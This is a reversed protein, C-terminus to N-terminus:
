LILQFLKSDEHQANVAILNDSLPANSAGLEQLRPVAQAFGPCRAALRSAINHLNWLMASAKTEQSFARGLALQNLSHTILLALLGASQVSTDDLFQNQGRRLFLSVSDVAGVAELRQAVQGLSQLTRQLRTNENEATNLQDSLEGLDQRIRAEALKGTEIEQRLAAEAQAREKRLAAEAQTRDLEVKALEDKSSDREEILKTKEGKLGSVENQAETLLREQEKLNGELPELKEVKAELTKVSNKLALESQELSSIREGAQKLNERLGEIEAALAANHSDAHQLLDQVGQLWDAPGQKPLSDKEASNERWKRHTSHLLTEIGRLRQFEVLEDEAKELDLFPQKSHETHPVPSSLLYSRVVLFAGSAILWIQAFLLWVVGKDGRTWTPPEPKSPPAPPPSQVPASTIRVPGKTGSLRLLGQADVVEFWAWATESKQTTYLHHRFTGAPQENWADILAAWFDFSDPWKKDNKETWEERWLEEHGVGKLIERSKWELDMADELPVNGEGKWVTRKAEGTGKEEGSIKYEQSGVPVLGSLLRMRAKKEAANVYLYIMVDPQRPIFGPTPGNPLRLPELWRKYDNKTGKLAVDLSGEWQKRVAARDKEDPYQRKIEKDLLKLLEQGNGPLWKGNRFEVTVGVLQDLDHWLLLKEPTEWHYYFTGEPPAGSPAPPATGQALVTPAVAALFLAVLVVFRSRMIGTEQVKLKKRSALGRAM